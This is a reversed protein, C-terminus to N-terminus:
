SIAHPVTTYHINFEDLNEITIRKNQLAEVVNEKEGNTYYVITYPSLICHFYYKNEDDNYFNEIAEDCIETEIVIKEVIYESSNVVEKSNLKEKVKSLTTFWPVIVYDTLYCNDTCYNDVFAEENIRRVRYYNYFLGVYKISGGDCYMTVEVPFVPPQNKKARLFDTTFFISFLLVLSVLSILWIKLGKKM